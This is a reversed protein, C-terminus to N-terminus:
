YLITCWLLPFNIRRICTEVIHRIYKVFPLAVSMLLMFMGQLVIKHVTVPFSKLNRRICTKVIHRICKVFPLAASMLLVFM